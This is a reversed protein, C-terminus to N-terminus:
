EHEILVGLRVVGRFDLLAISDGTVVVISGRYPAQELQHPVDGGFEGWIELDDDAVMGVGRFVSELRCDSVVPSAVGEYRLVPEIFGVLLLRERM